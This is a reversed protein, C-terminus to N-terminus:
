LMGDALNINHAPEWQGPIWNQLQELCMSPHDWSQLLKGWVGLNIYQGNFGGGEVQFDEVGIKQYESRIQAALGSDSHDEVPPSSILPVLLSQVLPNEPVPTIM